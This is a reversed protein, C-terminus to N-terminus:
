SSTFEINQSGPIVDRSLLTWHSRPAPPDVYENYYYSYRTSPGKLPHLVLERLFRLNLSQGNVTEPIITLLHTEYVKKEPWMPCPANLIQKINLPLPPEEGIDGFHDAWERKGFVMSPRKIHSIIKAIAEVKQRTLRIAYPIEESSHTELGIVLSTQWQHIRLSTGTLSKEPPTYHVRDPEIKQLINPNDIYVKENQLHSDSTSLLGSYGLVKGLSKHLILLAINYSPNKHESKDSFAYARDIPSSRKDVLTIVTVEQAWGQPSYIPYGSTLVHRPGVLTGRIRHNKEVTKVEIVVQTTHPWPLDLVPPPIAHTYVVEGEQHYVSPGPIYAVAPNYIHKILHITM